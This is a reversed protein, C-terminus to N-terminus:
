LLKLNRGPPPQPSRRGHDRARPGAGIGPRLVTARRCAATGSLASSLRRLQAM